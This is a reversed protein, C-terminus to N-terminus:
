DFHNLSFHQFSHFNKFKRSKSPAQKKGKRAPDMEIKRSLGRILDKEFSSWNYSADNGVEFFTKGDGCGLMRLIKERNGSSKEQKLWEILRDSSHSKGALKMFSCAQDDTVFTKALCNSFNDSPVCNKLVAKQSLEEIRKKILELDIDSTENGAQVQSEAKVLVIKAKWLIEFNENDILSDAIKVLNQLSIQESAEYKIADYLVRAKTSDSYLQSNNRFANAISEYQSDSYVVDYYGNSDANIIVLEQIDLELFEKEKSFWAMEVNTKGIEQYWIPIDWKYECVNYETYNSHIEIDKRQTLRIKGNLNEVYVTPYGNQYTWCKAFEELTPADASKLHFPELVKYLDHDETNSYSNQSLYRRIAELFHDTGIIKELMRIFSSGKAYNMENIVYEGNTNLPSENDNNAATLQNNLYYYDRDYKPNLFQHGFPTMYTAFGENLWVQGWSKMTVLNGFWQHALEHIVVESIFDSVGLIDPLSHVILGWNEMAGASFQRAALFDLKDMPYEIQLLKEFGELIVRSVNVAHDVYQYDVPDAYVRIRIDRDTKTQKYLVDGVFIALLYSSMKPTPEFQTITFDKFFFSAHADQNSLAIAGAPYALTVEWTAKFEPEDFCPIMLRAETAELQTVANMMTEGTATRSDTIYYGKMDSRLKGKFGLAIQTVTGPQLVENLYLNLLQFKPTFDWRTINKVVDTTIQPGIIEFSDAHLVIKDTPERIELDVKVFGEFTLNRGDAKWEYGPLFTTIFLNYNFPYVNTPLRSNTLNSSDKETQCDAFNWTTLILFTLLIFRM